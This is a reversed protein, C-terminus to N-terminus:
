PLNIFLRMTTRRDVRLRRLNHMRGAYRGSARAERRRTRPSAFNACRKRGITAMSSGCCRAPSGNAIRKTRAITSCSTAIVAYAHPVGTPRKTM